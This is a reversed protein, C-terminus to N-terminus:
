EKALEDVVEDSPTFAAYVNQVDDHDEITEMLKLNKKQAEPGLEMETDAIYILEAVETAIGAAELAKRVKDFDEAPCIIEWNAGADRVDDVGADLAVELITDEDIKETEEEGEQEKRVGFLGKRKFLWATAGASGLKGGHSDFIKKLEPQTRNTKDTVTQIILAVGDPGYGEYTAEVLSEGELEGSGKKIAREISDRPVGFVKAKELAHRLRLNTSTDSGGRAAILLARVLKSTVKGRRADNAAKKHKITAWHSHGSM